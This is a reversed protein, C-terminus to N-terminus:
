ELIKLKDQAQKNLKKKAIITRNDESFNEVIKWNNKGRIKRISQFLFFHLFKNFFLKMKKSDFIMYSPM